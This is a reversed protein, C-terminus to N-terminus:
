KKIDKQKKEEKKSKLNQFSLSEELDEEDEQVVKDYEKERDVYKVHLNDINFDHLTNVFSYYDDQNEFTMDIYDINEEDMIKKVEKLFEFRFNDPEMDENFSLGKLKSFPSLLGSTGPSYIILYIRVIDEDRYEIVLYLSGGTEYLVM